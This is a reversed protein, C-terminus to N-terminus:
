SSTPPSPSPPVSPISSSPYPDTPAPPVDPNPNEPAPGIDGGQPMNECDGVTNVTALYHVNEGIVFKKSPEYSTEEGYSHNIDGKGDCSQASITNLLTLLAGDSPAVKKNIPIATFYSGVITIVFDFGAEQCAQDILNLVNSSTDNVKLYFPCIDIIASVDIYMTVGCVPLLVTQNQLARLIFLMPIGGEDKFSAMFDTCDFSCVSPELLALVNILNPTNYNCYYDNMIVSVNTLSQRGDTLRVNWTFGSSSQEYTHDALVGTFSFGGVNITYVCGLSGNYDGCDALQLTLTSESGGFGLNCTLSIIDSNFAQPSSSM